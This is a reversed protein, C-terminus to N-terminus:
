RPAGMTPPTAPKLKHGHAKCYTPWGEPISQGADIKAQFNACLDPALQDLYPSDAACSALGTAMAALLLALRKM